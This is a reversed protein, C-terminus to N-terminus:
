RKDDKGDRAALTRISRRGARFDGCGSRIQFAGREVHQPFVLSHESQRFRSGTGAMEVDPWALGDRQPTTLGQKAKIKLVREIGDEVSATCVTWEHHHNRNV